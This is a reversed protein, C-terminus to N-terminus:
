SGDESWGDDPGDFAAALVWDVGDSTPARAGAGYGVLVGAVMCAALAMAPMLGRRPAGAADRLVRAALLEDAPPPAPALDLLVDLARAAALDHDSQAAFGLAADRESAPWRRPDAGYASVIAQFRQKDM